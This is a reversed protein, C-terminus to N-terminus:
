RELQPTSYRKLLKWLILATGDSEVEVVRFAVLVDSNGYNVARLVYTSNPALPLRRKFTIGDVVVGQEFRSHEKRADRDYTARRHTAPWNAATLNLTVSELPVDGLSTLFGYNAGSFGVQLYGHELSLHSAYGYAHTRYTFSYYSGGGQVTGSRGGSALPGVRQANNLHTFGGLTAGPVASVVQDHPPLTDSRNTTDDLKTRQFSGLTPTADGPIRSVTHRGNVQPDYKERPLLVFLGSNPSKLFEAYKLRTEKTPKLSKKEPKETQRGSDKRSQTQAFVTLSGFLLLTIAISFRRM